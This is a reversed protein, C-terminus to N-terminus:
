VLLHSTLKASENLESETSSQKCHYISKGFFGLSVVGSIGSFVAGGYLGLQLGMWILLAEPPAAEQSHSLSNLTEDSVYSALALAVTPAIAITGYVAAKTAQNMHTWKEKLSFSSSQCGQM